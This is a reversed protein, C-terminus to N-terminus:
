KLPSSNEGTHKHHLEIHRELLVKYSEGKGCMCCVYPKDAKIRRTYQERGKHQGRRTSGRRNGACRKSSVEPKMKRSETPQSHPRIFKGDCGSISNYHVPPQMSDYPYYSTAYTMSNYATDDDSVYTEHVAKNNHNSCYDLKQLEEEEQFMEKNPLVNTYAQNFIQENYMNKNITYMTQQEGKHNILKPSLIYYQSEGVNEIGSSPQYCQSGGVDIIESHSLYYQSGGVDTIESSPQYRQSGGVDVIESHPLYYQSGGVDTIESSPQYCQSWGVDTIESSPQCDVSSQASTKQTMKCHNYTNCLASMHNYDVSQQLYENNQGNEELQQAYSNFETENMLNQYGIQNTSTESYENQQDVHRGVEELPFEQDKNFRFIDSWKDAYEYTGTCQDTTKNEFSPFYQDNYQMQSTPEQQHYANYKNNISDSSHIFCQQYQTVLPASNESPRKMQENRFSCPAVATSNEIPIYDTFIHQDSGDKIILHNNSGSPCQQQGTSTSEYNNRIHSIIQNCSRASIVPKRSGESTRIQMESGRIPEQQSKSSFFNEYTDQIISHSTHQANSTSLRKTQKKSCCQDAHESCMKTLSKNNNSLDQGKTRRVYARKKKITGDNKQNDRMIKLKADKGKCEKYQETVRPKRTNSRCLRSGRITSDRGRGSNGYRDSIAHVLYSDFYLPKQMEYGITTSRNGNSTTIGYTQIAPKRGRGRGRERGENRGVYEAGNAQISNLIDTDSETDKPQHLERATWSPVTETYSVVPSTACLTTPWMCNSTKQSTEELHSTEQSNTFTNNPACYYKLYKNKKTAMNSTDYSIDIHNEYSYCPVEPQIIFNHNEATPSFQSPNTGQSIASTMLPGTLTKSTMSTKMPVCFNSVSTTATTLISSGASPNQLPTLLSASSEAPLTTYRKVTGNATSINVQPLQPQGSATVLTHPQTLKTRTDPENRIYPIVATKTNIKNRIRAQKVPPTRKCLKASIKKQNRNKQLLINPSYKKPKQKVQSQKSPPPQLQRRENAPCHKELLNNYVKVPPTLTSLTQVSRKAYGRPVVPSDILSFKKTVNKTLSMATTQAVNCDEGVNDTILSHKSIVSLTASIQTEPETFSSIKENSASLTLLVNESSFNTVPNTVPSDLCMLSDKSPNAKPATVHIETGNLPLSQVAYEPCILTNDTNESITGKTVAVESTDVNDDEKVRGSSSHFSTHEQVRSIDLYPKLENLLSETGSQAVETITSSSHGTNDAKTHSNSAM